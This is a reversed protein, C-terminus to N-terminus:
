GCYGCIVSELGINLDMNGSKYNEDLSILQELFNRLAKDTFFSAQRKYKSVLFTQNPKLKLNELINQNYKECLKVIYLKKFHNYLTVLIKQIPEKAYELNKLVELAMKVNKNGLSDTLDFIVSEFQKTCLIDIDDKKITGDKGVYEILKMIENILDQLNTGCSEIFYNLNSNDINVGYANCIFMIRKAIEPVKEQEFNCM